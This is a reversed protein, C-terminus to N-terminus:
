PQMGLRVAIAASRSDGARLRLLYLGPSFGQLSVRHSGPGAIGQHLCWRRGSPIRVLDLRVRAARPLVFLAESRGESHRASLGFAGASATEPDRLSLSSGVEAVVLGKPTGLASRFTRMDSGDARASRVRGPGVESWYLRRGIRDFALHYPRANGTSFRLVGSGDLRARGIAHANAEAWYIRGSDADLALGAPGALGGLVDLSAGSSDARADLKRIRGTGFESWYLTSDRSDFALGFPTSSSGPGFNRLSLLPGGGLSQRGIGPGSTLNTSGLFLLSRVPDLALARLVSQGGLVTATDGFGLAAKRVRAGAFALESWYLTKGAADIAMAEPLSGPELALSATVKGATDGQVLRPAAFDGEIWVLAPEASGTQMALAFAALCALTSLATPRPEAPSPRSTAPM